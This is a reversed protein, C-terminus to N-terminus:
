PADECSRQTGLLSSSLTSNRWLRQSKNPDDDARELLLRVVGEQGWYVASALPTEGLVSPTNPNVDKHALLMKVVGVYGKWAAISLPTRGRVDAVNPNTDDRELLMKVIEEHGGLAAWFLPSPCKRRDQNARLLGRAM